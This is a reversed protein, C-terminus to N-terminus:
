KKKQNKSDSSNNKNKNKNNNNEEKSKKKRSKNQLASIEVAPLRVKEPEPEPAVEIGLEREKSELKEFYLKYFTAALPVGAVMGAIKFLGGGVTIAVLVWIGPLGISNGVVKPYILNNELQQLIVLFILFILAQMPNVTFIIFASVCAGILAGVIPILATVGVVVGSMAAYPLKLITAGIFCLSGLLIAEIFQGIFFNQFTENAVSFFKSVVRNVRDGVYVKMFRNTDRILKDKRALLYIAFIVALVINTVAGTIAGLIGVASDILDKVGKKVTETVSEIISDWDLGKFDFEGFLEDVMEQIEPYEKFINMVYDRAKIIWPPIMESLITFANIIEPIIINLIFVIMVIVIVFSMVICVPRRSYRFFKHTRKPFYHKELWNMLINFIYAIVCGLIMPKLANLLIGILGGLLKFNQVVFCVVVALVAVTAYKKLEKKEMDGNREIYM